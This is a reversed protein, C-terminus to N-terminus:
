RKERRREAIGRNIEELLRSFPLSQIFVRGPGTLTVFFLGEGGFLAKKFGGVTEVGFRMGASFAVLSGSDVRMMQKEALMEEFIMGGAHIFAMGEGRIKQLVFGEGGFLGAGVNKTFALSVQVDPTGCFFAGKQCIVEGGYEGLDVALIKGPYPASFCVMAPLDQSINRFVSLFFSEGTLKRKLGQFLGGAKVTMEVTQDMCLMAGPEAQIEEGPELLVRLVQLDDGIIEYEM